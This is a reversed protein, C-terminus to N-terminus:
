IERGMRFFKIKPMTIMLYHAIFRYETGEPYNNWYRYALNIIPKVMVMALRIVTQYLYWKCVNFLNFRRLVIGDKHYPRQWLFWTDRQFLAKWETGLNFKVGLQEKM